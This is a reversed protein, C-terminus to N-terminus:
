NKISFITYSIIYRHIRKEYEFIIKFVFNSFETEFNRDFIYFFIKLRVYDYLLDILICYILACFILLIETIERRVSFVWGVVGWRDGGELVGKNSVDSDIKFLFWKARTKVMESMQRKELMYLLIVKIIDFLFRSVLLCSMTETVVM